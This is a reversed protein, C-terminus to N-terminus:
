EEIFSFIYISKSSSDFMAILGDERIALSTPFLRSELPLSSFLSSTQNTKHCIDVLNYEKIIKGEFTYRKVISGSEIIWINNWNDLCACNFDKVSINTENLINSSESYLYLTGIENIILLRDLSKNYFLNIPRYVDLVKNIYNGDMDFKVIKNNGRDTVYVNGKVISIGSPLDIDSEATGWNGFSCLFNGSNSFVHIKHLASDTIYINKNDFDFSIPLLMQGKNKGKSGLTFFLKGDEDMYYLCANQSDLLLLNGSENWKSSSIWCTKLQDKPLPLTFSKLFKITVNPSLSNLKPIVKNTNSIFPLSNNMNDNNASSIFNRNINTKHNNNDYSNTQENKSKEEKEENAISSATITIDNTTLTATSFSSVTFTYYNHKNELIPFQEFAKNTSKKSDSIKHKISIIKKKAQETHSIIYLNIELLEDKSFDNLPVNIKFIYPKSVISINQDQIIYIEDEIVKSYYTSGNKLIEVEVDQLYIVQYESSELVNNIKNWTIALDFNQEVISANAQLLPLTKVKGEFIIRDKNKSDFFQIFYVIGDIIDNIFIYLEKSQEVIQFKCKVFIKEGKDNIFYVKIFEDLALNYNLPLDFGIDNLSVRVPKYNELYCKTFNIAKRNNKDAYVSSTANYIHSSSSINAYNNSDENFKSLTINYNTFVTVKYNVIHRIEKFLKVLIEYIGPETITLETIGNENNVLPEQIASATIRTIKIIDQNEKSSAEILFRAVCPKDILLYFKHEKIEPENPDFIGNFEFIKSSNSAQLDEYTNQSNVNISFNQQTLQFQTQAKSKTSNEIEVLQCVSFLSNQNIEALLICKHLIFLYFIFLFIYKNTFRSISKSFKIIFKIKHFNKM